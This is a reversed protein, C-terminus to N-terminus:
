RCPPIEAAVDKGAALTRLDVDRALAVYCNTESTKLYTTMLTPGSRRRV